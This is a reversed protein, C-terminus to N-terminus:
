QEQLKPDLADRVADGFFNFAVVLILIAIGPALTITPNLSLYQKTQNVLLGWSTLPPQAGIGLFSLSAETLINGPINNTTLVILTPVCNPLIHRIMITWRKVGISTAAEVYEKERLSLVESRVVRATGGWSVVSLAIMVTMIGTGLAYSIVMALLLSPFAICIDAIRMIISDVKGGVFGATLGLLTGLVMSIATPIFAVMLSTRGGYIIRSLIDRGLKDCGLLHEASPKALSNSTDQEDLGYPAIYPAFICMLIFLIIIIMSVLALKNHKFMGKFKEWVSQNPAIEAEASEELHVPSTANEPIWSTGEPVPTTTTAAVYQLKKSM